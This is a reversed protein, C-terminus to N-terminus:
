ITATIVKHDANYKGCLISYIYLHIFLYVLLYISMQM